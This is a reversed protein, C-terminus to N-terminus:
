PLRYTELKIGDRLLLLYDQNSATALAAAIPQKFPLPLSFITKSDAVSLVVAERATTKVTDWAAPKGAVHSYLAFKEDKSIDVLWGKFNVRKTIRELDPDAAGPLADVSSVNAAGLVSACAVNAGKDTQETWGNSEDPLERVVNYQCANSPALDPVTLTAAEYTETVTLLKPM